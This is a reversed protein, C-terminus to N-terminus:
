IFGVNINITMGNSMHEFFEEGPNHVTAIWLKGKLNDLCLLLHRTACNPVHKLYMQPKISWKTTVKDKELVFCFYINNMYIVMKICAKLSFTPSSPWTWSTEVM